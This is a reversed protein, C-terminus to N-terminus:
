SENTKIVEEIRKTYRYLELSYIFSEAALAVELDNLHHTAFEGTEKDLRVIYAADIAQGTREVNAIAYGGIQRYYSPRIQGSTKWDVIITEGHANGAVVDITGAYGHVVSCTPVEIGEPHLGAQDWWKKFANIGNFVHEADPPPIIPDDTDLMIARLAKEIFAHVASGKAGADKKREDHQRRAETYWKARIGSVSENDQFAQLIEYQIVDHHDLLYDAALGAAWWAIGPKDETAGVIASPSDYFGVPGAEKFRVCYHRKPRPVLEMDLVTDTLLAPSLDRTWHPYILTRTAM